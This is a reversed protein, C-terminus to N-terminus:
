LETLFDAMKNKGKELSQLQVTKKINTADKKNAKKIVDKCM